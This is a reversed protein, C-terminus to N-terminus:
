LVVGELRNEPKYRIFRKGKKTVIDQVKSLYEKYSFRDLTHNVYLIEFGPHSLNLKYLNECFLMIEENNEQQYYVKGDAYYCRQQKGDCIFTFDAREKLLRFLKIYARVEYCANISTEEYVEGTKTFTTESVKLLEYETDNSIYAKDISTIINVIGNEDNLDKKITMTNREALKFIFYNGTDKGRAIVTYISPDAFSGLMSLYNKLTFKRM